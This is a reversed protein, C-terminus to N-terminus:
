HFFYRFEFEAERCGVPWMLKKRFENADIITLVYRVIHPFANKNPKVFVDKLLYKKAEESLPKIFNLCRLNEYLDHALSEELSKQEVQNTVFISRRRNM